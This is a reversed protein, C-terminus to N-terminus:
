GGAVQGFLDLQVPKPPAAPAPAAAVVPKIAGFPVTCAIADLRKVHAWQQNRGRVVPKHCRGCNMPDAM